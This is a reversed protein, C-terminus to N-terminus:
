LYKHKITKIIKDHEFHGDQSDNHNMKMIEHRIVKDQQLLYNYTYNHSYRWSDAGGVRQAATTCASYSIAARM